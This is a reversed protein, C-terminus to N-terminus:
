NDVGIFSKNVGNIPNNMGIIANNAGILPSDAGIHSNNVGILTNNTEISSNRLKRRKRYLLKRLVNYSYKRILARKNEDFGFLGAEAFFM